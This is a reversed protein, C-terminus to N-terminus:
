CRCQHKTNQGSGICSHWVGASVITSELWTECAMGWNSVITSEPWLEHEWCRLRETGNYIHTSLFSHQSNFAMTAPESPNFLSLLSTLKSLAMSAPESFATTAPTEGNFCAWPPNQNTLNQNQNQNQNQNRCTKLRTVHSPRARPEPEPEPETEPEPEQVDKVEDCTLALTHAKLNHWLWGLASWLSM